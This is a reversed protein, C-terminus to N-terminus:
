RSTQTNVRDPNNASRSLNSVGFLVGLLIWPFITSTIAKTGGGAAATVLFAERFVCEAIWVLVFAWGAAKIWDPVVTSYEVGSRLRRVFRLLAIVLWLFMFLGPLGTEAAVSLFQNHAVGGVSVEAYTRDFFQYNGAGVGLLPHAAFLQLATLYYYIRELGYAEDPNYFRSVLGLVDSLPVLLLLVVIGVVPLVLTLHKRMLSMSVIALGVFSLLWSERSFTLAAGVLSFVFLICILWYRSLSHRGFLVGAYLFPILLSPLPEMSSDWPQEWYARTAGLISYTGGFGFVLAAITVLTGLAVVIGMTTIVTEVMRWNKISTAVAFPMCITAALLALQSIQTTTWSVDAHPFSYTVSPDPSIRSWLMSLPTVIAIGLLPRNIADPQFLGEISWPRRRTALWAVIFIGIALDGPYLRSFPGSEFPSYSLLGCAFVVVALSNFPNRLQLAIAVIAGVGVLVLPAQVLLVDITVALGVVILCRQWSGLERTEPPTLYLEM